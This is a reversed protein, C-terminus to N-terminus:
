KETSKKTRFIDEPVLKPLIILSAILLIGGILKERIDVVVDYVDFSDHIPKLFLYAGYFLICLFLVAPLYIILNRKGRPNKM